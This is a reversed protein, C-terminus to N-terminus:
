GWIVFRVRVNENFLRELGERMSTKITYPPLLPLYHKTMGRGAIIQASPSLISMWDLVTKGLLIICTLSNIRFLLYIYIHLSLLTLSLSGTPAFHIVHM